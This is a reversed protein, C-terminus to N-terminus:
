LMLSYLLVFNLFHISKLVIYTNKTLLYMNCQLQAEDIIQTYNSINNKYVSFMNSTIFCIPLDLHTPNNFDSSDDHRM